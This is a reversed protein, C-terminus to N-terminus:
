EDLDIRELCVHQAHPDHPDDSVENDLVAGSAPTDRAAVTFHERFHEASLHSFARLRVKARMVRRANTAQALDNIQRVIDRVLAREHM